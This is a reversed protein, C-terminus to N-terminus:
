IICYVICLSNCEYMSCSSPKLLLYIISLYSHVKNESTRRSASPLVMTTSADDFGNSGIHKGAVPSLPNNETTSEALDGLKLGPVAPHSSGNMQECCYWLKDWNCSCGTQVFDRLIHCKFCLNFAPSGKFRTKEVECFIPNVQNKWWISWNM